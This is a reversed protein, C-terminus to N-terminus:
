RFEFTEGAQRSEPQSDGDGFVFMSGADSFDLLSTFLDGVAAFLFMGPSTKLILVAFAFQMLTGAIIVRWPVIGKHSSMLWALGLMVAFGFLSVLREM